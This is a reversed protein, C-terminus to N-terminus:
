EPIDAEHYSFADFERATKSDVSKKARKPM